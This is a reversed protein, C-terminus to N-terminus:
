SLAGRQRSLMTRRDGHETEHTARGRPRRLLSRTPSPPGAIREAYRGAGRFSLRIVHVNRRSVAAPAGASGGVNVVIVANHRVPSVIGSPGRVSRTTSTRWASGSSGGMRTTSSVDPHADLRAGRPRM